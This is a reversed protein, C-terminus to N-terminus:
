QAGKRDCIKPELLVEEKPAEMPQKVFEPDSQLLWIAAATSGYQAASEMWKRALPLNKEIPKASVLPSSSGNEMLRGINYMARGYCMDAAKKYLEFATKRKEGKKLKEEKVGLGNEYMYALNNYAVPSVYTKLLSLARAYDHPEYNKLIASAQIAGLSDGKEGTRLYWKLAKQPDSKVGGLGYLYVMGLINKAAYSGRASAKEYVALAKRGNDKLGTLYIWGLRDIAPKYGRSADLEYWKAAENLDYPVGIGFQYLKGIATASEVRGNMVAQKYFTLAKDINRPVGGQGTEHYYGQLDQARAFGMQAAQMHFLQASYIDGAKRAARGKTFLEAAAHEKDTPPLPHRDDVRWKAVAIQEPSLKKGVKAAAAKAYGVVAAKEDGHMYVVEKAEDPVLSYWYYAEFDDPPNQKAFYEGLGAYAVLNIEAAATRYVELLDDMDQPPIGGKRHTEFLRNLSVLDGYAATRLWLKVAEATKGELALLAGQADVDGQEAAKRFLAAAQATDKTLRGLNYLAPPYGEEAAKAYLKAAQATDKKVGEGHEYFAGLNNLAMIHGQAAAKEYWRAAAAFDPPTDLTLTYLVALNFQAGVAGQEAAKRYLEKAEAFKRQDLYSAGTDRHREAPAQEIVKRYWASAARKEDRLKKDANGGGLLEKQKVSLGLPNFDAIKGNLYLESPRRLIKRELPPWAPATDRMLKVTDPAVRQHRGDTRQVSLEYDGRTDNRDMRALLITYDGFEEMKHDSSCDGNCGAGDVLKGSPAFIAYEPMFGKSDKAKVSTRAIVGPTGSFTYVDISGRIISGTYAEGFKVRKGKAGPAQAFALEFEWDDPGPGMGSVEARWDGEKMVELVTHRVFSDTGGGGDVPNNDPDFIRLSNAFGPPHGNKDGLSIMFGGKKAVKFTYNKVEGGHLIDTLPKGNELTGAIEDPMGGGHMMGMGGYDGKTTVTYDGKADSADNRWVFITHVGSPMLAAMMECSEPCSMGGMMSGDPYVAFIEPMFDPGGRSTLKFEGGRDPAGQMTYVDVSGRTITGPYVKNFKMPLGGTGPAEAMSLEYNGGAEGNDARSVELTWEGDAPNNLPIRFFYERAGWTVPKKDPGFIKLAPSFGPTHEGTESVTVVFAKKRSAKLTYKDVGTGTIVGSVKKLSDIKGEVGNAFSPQPCFALGLGVFLGLLMNRCPQM